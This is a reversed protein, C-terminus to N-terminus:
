PLALWMMIQVLPSDDFEGAEIRKAHQEHGQSRAYASARKRGKEVLIVQEGVDELVENGAPVTSVIALLRRIADQRNMASDTADIWSDLLELDNPQLRVTIPVGKGTPAPGRRKRSTLTEQGGSNVM